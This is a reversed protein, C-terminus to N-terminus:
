HFFRDFEINWAECTKRLRQVKPWEIRTQLAIDKSYYEMAKTFNECASERKGQTEALLALHELLHAHYPDPATSPIFTFAEDILNKAIDFEERRRHFGAQYTLVFIISTRRGTGSELISKSKKYADIASQFEGSGERGLAEVALAWAMGDKYSAQESYEYAKRAYEMCHLSDGPQWDMSLSPSFPFDHVIHIMELTGLFKLVDTKLLVPPVEKSTYELRNWLQEFEARSSKFNEVRFQLQGIEFSSYIQFIDANKSSPTNERHLNLADAIWGMQGRLRAVYFRIAHEIEPSPQGSLTERFRVYDKLGDGAEGLLDAFRLFRALLEWSKLSAWKQSIWKQAETYSGDKEFQDLVPYQPLQLSPLTGVQTAVSEEREIKSLGERKVNKKSRNELHEIIQVIGAVIGVIAGIVGIGAILITIDM